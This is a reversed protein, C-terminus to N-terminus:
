FTNRLRFSSSKEALFLIMIFIVKEIICDQHKQIYYLIKKEFHILRRGKIRYIYSDFTSLDIAFSRYQIIIVFDFEDIDKERKM